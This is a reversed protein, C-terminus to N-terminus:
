IGLAYEEERKADNRSVLFADPLRLRWINDCKVSCLPIGWTVKRTPVSCVVCTPHFANRLEKYLELLHLKCDGALMHVKRMKEDILKADCWRCETQPYTKAWRGVFFRYEVNPINGEYPLLDSPRVVPEFGRHAYPQTVPAAYPVYKKALPAEPFTLRHIPPLRYSSPSCIHRILVDPVDPMDKTFFSHRECELLPIVWKLIKYRRVRDHDPGGSLLITGWFYCCGVTNGLPTLHANEKEPLAM